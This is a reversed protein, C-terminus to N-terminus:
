KKPKPKLFAKMAGNKMQKNHCGVCECASTCQQRGNTTSLCPCRGNICGGECGCGGGSKKKKKSKGGGQKSAKKKKPKEATVVRPPPPTAGSDVIGCQGLSSDFSMTSTSGSSKKKQKQVSDAAIKRDVSEVPLSPKPKQASDAAIKRDVSEAPLSSKPKQASDAAIKTTVSEVPPPPKQAFAATIKTQQGASKEKRQMEKEKKKVEYEEMTIKSNAICKAVCGVGNATVNERLLECIMDASDHKEVIAQTRGFQHRTLVDLQVTKFGFRYFRSALTTCLQAEEMPDMKKWADSVITLTFHGNKITIFFDIGVKPPVFRM